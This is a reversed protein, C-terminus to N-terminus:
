WKKKNVVVERARVIATKEIEGNTVIWQKNTTKKKVKEEQQGIFSTNVIIM